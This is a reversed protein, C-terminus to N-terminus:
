RTKRNIKRTAKKVTKNAKRAANLGKVQSAREKGRLAGGKNSRSPMSSSVGTASGKPKVM